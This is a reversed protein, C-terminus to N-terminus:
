FLMDVEAPTKQLYNVYNSIKDIQHVAMRREIRRGITTQKYHSFDHGTAIRILAFIKQIYNTFQNDTPKVKKPVGVYPTRVYKVLEAPIKEVPLIFDVIGTSIASRPMGDYKASDPDQVMAIGGGGKVAKLGLTGDTATGSLIICIAKEGLEEAMSRFFCDIPLNIGGTKVPDLLQLKGNIIVVNKDPPNLYVRNPEVKTGDEVGLVKMRTCKSLLSDMISKHTPSLHQIVVFAINSDPPMNSFFAELAELGGASAGLGVIPFDIKRKRAAGKPADKPKKGATGKKKAAPKNKDRTKKADQEQKKAAM